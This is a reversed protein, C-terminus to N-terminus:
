RIGYSFRDPAYPACAASGGGCMIDDAVMEATACCLTWGVAGHGANVYVAGPAAHCRGILPLFDPTMPRLGTWLESTSDYTALRPLIECARALLAAKRAALLAADPAGDEDYEAFGALRVRGAGLPVIQVHIEDSYDSVSVHPVAEGAEGAADAAGHAAAGPRLDLSFGRMAVLPLWAHRAAADGLLERTALGGCLVVADARLVRRAGDAGEVEIAAAAGCRAEAPPALTVVRCGWECRVRGSAEAARRVASAFARADASWDSMALVCGGGVGGVDGDGGGGGGGRRLWGALQPFRDACADCDLVEISPWGRQAAAAAKPEADAAAHAASGYLWLNGERRGIEDPASIACERLVRETAAVTREALDCFCANNHEFRAQTCSRLYHLGYWITRPSLKISPASVAADGEGPFLLVRLASIVSLPKAPPFGLLRAPCFRGANAHSCLAAEEEASDVLTVHAGRQALAWATTVGALGGGVVLVHPHLTEEETDSSSCRARRNTIRGLLAAGATAAVLRLPM